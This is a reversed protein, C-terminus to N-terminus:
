KLINISNIIKETTESLEKSAEKDTTMITISYNRENVVTGWQAVVKKGTKTTAVIVFAPNGEKFQKAKGVDIIKSGQSKLHDISSNLMMDILDLLELEREDEKLKRTTIILGIDYKGISKIEVLSYDGDNEEIIRWSKPVEVSFSENNDTYTIKELEDYNEHSCGMLALLFVILTSKNLM